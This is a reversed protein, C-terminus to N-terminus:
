TIAALYDGLAAPFVGGGPVYGLHGGSAPNIGARDVKARIEALLQEMPKGAEEIALSLKGDAAPEDYAKLTEIHNIFDDAYAQVKANWTDRQQQPPELQRALQELEQIKDTM